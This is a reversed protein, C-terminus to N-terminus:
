THFFATLSGLGSREQERATLDAYEEPFDRCGESIKKGCPVGDKSCVKMGRCHQLTQKEGRFPCVSCMDPLQFAVYEIVNGDWDTVEVCPVEEYAGWMPDQSPKYPEGGTYFGGEPYIMPHRSKPLMVVKWGWSFAKEKRLYEYEDRADAYKPFGCVNRLWEVGRRRAEIETVALGYNVRRDNM